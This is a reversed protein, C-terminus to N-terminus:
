VLLRRAWGFIALRTRRGVSAALGRCRRASLRRARRRETRTASHAMPRGTPRRALLDTLTLPGRSNSVIIHHGAAVSLQTVTRGIRGSGIFGVTTVSRRLRLVSGLIGRRRPRPRHAPDAPFAAALGTGRVARGPQHASVSLLGAM